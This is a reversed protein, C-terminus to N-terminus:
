MNLINIQTPTIKSFLKNCYKSKMTIISRDIVQSLVAVKTQLANTTNM